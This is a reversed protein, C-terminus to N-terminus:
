YELLWVGSLLAGFLAASVIAIVLYRITREGRTQSETEENAIQEDLEDFMTEEGEFANM